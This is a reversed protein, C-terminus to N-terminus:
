EEGYAEAEGGTGIDGVVIDAVYDITDFGGDDFLGCIVYNGPFYEGGCYRVRAMYVAVMATYIARTKKYLWIM